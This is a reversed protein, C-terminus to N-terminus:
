EDLVARINAKECHALTLYGASKVFIAPKSLHSCSANVPLLHIVQWYRRIEIEAGRKRYERLSADAMIYALPGGDPPDRRQDLCGHRVAIM